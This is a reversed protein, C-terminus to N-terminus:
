RLSVLDLRFLGTVPFLVFGDVNARTARVLDLNNIFIWPADDHVIKNIEKYIQARRELNTVRRGEALLRNVAPNDYRTNNSPGASHTVENYEFRIGIMNDPDGNDGSGGVIAFGEWPTRRILNLYAGWEYQTLKVNVGVKALYSQVAEGLKAGGIPNYSRPNSYVAMETSLGNPFGAEAMLKKAMEPDYPYPRVTPNYAWYGPSVVQSSTTAGSYLAKNIADRDVAYNMAQRLRRDKFPGVDDSMGVGLTLLAPGRLLKLANSRAVRGYDAPNVDLLAQVENRELMLLRTTSEPVVRFVIRDIKPRGRWYSPNADLTLHDNRVAEALKFPGTGAPHQGADCNYQKVVAPSIIGAPVMALNAIFGANPQPLTFRLTDDDVAEIKVATGNPVSGYTFGDFTDVKRAPVYCPNQPNVARDLDQSVTRANVPTGDQFTVGRRIKFTYVKGDPAVTWSEALGPAPLTTGPKYSVLSDYLASEVYWSENNVNTQPDLGTQDAGLAIVLTKPAQAQALGWAGMSLVGAAVAALVARGRRGLGRRVGGVRSTQM